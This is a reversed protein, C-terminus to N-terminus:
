NKIISRCFKKASALLRWLKYTYTCANHCPPHWLYSHHWQSRSRPSCPWIISKSNYLKYKTHIYILVHCPPADNLILDSHCQGKVVLDFLQNQITCIFARLKLLFTRGQCLQIIFCINHSRTPLIIFSFRVFM